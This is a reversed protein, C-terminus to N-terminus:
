ASPLYAAVGILEDLRVLELGRQRLGTVLPNMAAVTAWPSPRRGPGVGDHLMIIDGARAHPLLRGLIRDTNTSVGDKARRTWTIVAQGGRRAARTIPWTRIGMPPRFLAPRKGIIQAVADDTRRLQEEWYAWNHFSGLYHHDYSHNAVIHGEDDMRRLLQPLRRAHRGIVFFAARANLEGLTDLIRATSDETPGDDFTLAVRPRGQRPGRFIVRGCVPSRPAIFAAYVAATTGCVGLGASVVPTMALM